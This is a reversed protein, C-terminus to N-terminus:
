FVYPQVMMKGYEEFGMGQYLHIAVPNDCLIIPTKNNDLLQNILLYLINAAHGCKRHDPHTAVAGLLAYRDSQLLISATSVVKGDVTIVGTQGGLYLRQNTKSQLFDNYDPINPFNSRLLQWIEPMHSTNANLATSSKKNGRYVLIYKNGSNHPMIIEQTHLMQLFSNLEAQGFAGYLYATGGTHLLVSHNHTFSQYFANQQPYGQLFAIPYINGIPDASLYELLKATNQNQQIM